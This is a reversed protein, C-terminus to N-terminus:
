GWGMLLSAKRRRSVDAKFLALDALGRAREPETASKLDIISFFIGSESRSYAAASSRASGFALLVAPGSWRMAKYEIAAWKFGDEEIDAKIM